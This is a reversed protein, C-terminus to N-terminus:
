QSIYKGGRRTRVRVKDKDAQTFNDRTKSINAFSITTFNPNIYPVKINEGDMTTTEVLKLYRRGNNDYDFCGLDIYPQNIRAESEKDFKCRGSIAGIDTMGKGAFLDRIVDNNFNVYKDKNQYADDYAAQSIALQTEIMKLDGHYKDWLYTGPGIMRFYPGGYPDDVTVKKEVVTEDKEEGTELDVTHVTGEVEETWVGTEGYIDANEGFKDRIRGRYREHAETATSLAAATLLYKGNLVKFGVLIAGASLIGGIIAPAYNKVIRIRMKRKHAKLDKAKDEETYPETTEDGETVEREKIIEEEKEGEDLIDHMKTTAKCALVITVGFGILGATVLIAPSHEGAFASIATLASM